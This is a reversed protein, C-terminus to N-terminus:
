IKKFIYNCFTKIRNMFSTEVREQLFFLKYTDVMGVSYLVWNDGDRFVTICSKMKQPKVATFKEHYVLKEMNKMSYFYYDPDVETEIETRFKGFLSMELICDMILGKETSTISRIEASSYLEYWHEARESYYPIGVYDRINLLTNNIKEQLDENGEYPRIQIVEAIYAPRLDDVADLIKKTHSNQEVCTDRYSKLNRIVVEGSELRKLEESSIKSNFPGAYLIGSFALAAAFLATKLNKM